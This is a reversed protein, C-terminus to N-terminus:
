GATQSTWAAMDFYDRWAAIKGDRLEFVGAVPLVVRKDGMEFTDVRETHVVNGSSAIHVIEFLIKQSGPVFINLMNRIGDTGKVPDIPMNHYVADDTFFSLLEDVNRRSWAECFAKVCEEPGMARRRENYLRTLRDLEAEFEPMREAAPSEDVERTLDWIRERLERLEDVDVSGPYATAPPGSRQSVRSTTVCVCTIMMSYAPACADARLGEDPGSSPNKRAV